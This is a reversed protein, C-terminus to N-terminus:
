IQFRPAQDLVRAITQRGSLEPDAFLTQHYMLVVIDIQSNYSYSIGNSRLFEKMIVAWSVQATVTPEAFIGLLPKTEEQLRRFEGVVANRKEQMEAPVDQDPYVKKYEEVYFDVMSTHALLELKGKSLDAEDYMGNVTHFELLPIVLHRDLYQSLQNTLEWMAPTETKQNSDNNEM